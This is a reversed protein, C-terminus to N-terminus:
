RKRLEEVEILTALVLIRIASDLMEASGTVSPRWNSVRKQLYSCVQDVEGDPLPDAAGNCAMRLRLCVEPLMEKEFWPLVDNM